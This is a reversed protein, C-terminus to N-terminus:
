RHVDPLRAARLGAANTSARGAVTRSAAYNEIGHCYGMEKIMELDFRHASPNASVEVLRGQKELEAEWRELEELGTGVAAKKREPPM